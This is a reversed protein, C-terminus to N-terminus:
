GVNDPVTLEIRQEVTKWNPKDPPLHLLLVINSLSLLFKGLRAHPRTGGYNPPIRWPSPTRGIRVRLRRLVTQFEEIRHIFQRINKADIDLRQKGSGTRKRIGINFGRSLLM